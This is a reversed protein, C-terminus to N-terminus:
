GRVSRTPAPASGWREGLVVFHKYFCLGWAEVADKSRASIALGANFEDDDSAFMCVIVCASKDDWGFTVRYGREILVTQDDVLSLISPPNEDFAALEEETLNRNVWTPAKRSPSPTKAMVFSGKVYERLCRTDNLELYLNRGQRKDGASLGQLM